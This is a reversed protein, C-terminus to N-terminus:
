TLLFDLKPTERLKDEIKRAVYRQMEDATAGPWVAGVVVTKISFPPDEARGMRLYAVLGAISCAIM